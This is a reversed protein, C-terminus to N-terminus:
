PKYVVAKGAAILADALREGTSADYVEGDWRDGYKDPGHSIVRLNPEHDALWQVTFTRADKGEPTYLEPANCGFLRFKQRASEITIVHFGFDFSMSVVLHMTDGDYVDAVVAPYDYLPGVTVLDRGVERM